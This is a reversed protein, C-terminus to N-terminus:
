KGRKDLKVVRWCIANGSPDLWCGDKPWCVLQSHFDDPRPLRYGPEGDYYTTSREAYCRRMDFSSYDPKPPHHSVALFALLLGVNGLVVIVGAIVAPGLRCLAVVAGHRDGHVTVM